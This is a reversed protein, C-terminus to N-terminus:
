LADGQARAAHAIGSSCCGKQAEPVLRLEEVGTYRPLLKFLTNPVLNSEHTDAQAKRTVELVDRADYTESLRDSALLIEANHPM